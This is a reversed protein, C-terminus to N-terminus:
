SSALAELIRALRDRIEASAAVAMGLGYLGYAVGLYALPTLLAAPALASASRWRSAAPSGPEKALCARCRLIGEVRTACEECVTVSCTPCVGIGPRDPHHRCATRALGM